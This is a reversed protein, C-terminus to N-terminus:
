ALRKIRDNGHVLAQREGAADPTDYALVIEILLSRLHTHIM